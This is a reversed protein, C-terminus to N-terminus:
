KTHANRLSSRKGHASNLCTRRDAGIERLVAHSSWWKGSKCTLPTETVNSKKYVKLYLLKCYLENLRNGWEVEIDLM